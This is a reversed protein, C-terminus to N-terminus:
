QRPYEWFPRELKDLQCDQHQRYSYYKCCTFEWRGTCSHLNYRCCSTYVSSINYTNHIYCHRLNAVHNQMCATLLDQTISITWGAIYGIHMLLVHYLTQCGLVIVLKVHMPPFPPVRHMCNDEFQHVNTIRFLTTHETFLTGLYFVVVLPFLCPVLQITMM